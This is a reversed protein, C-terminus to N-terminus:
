RAAEPGAAPLGALEGLDQLVCDPRRAFRDVDESRSLGTLVLATRMGTGAISDTEMDDGM